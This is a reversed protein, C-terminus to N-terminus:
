HRNSTSLSLHQVLVLHVAVSQLFDKYNRHSLHSGQLDVPSFAPFEIL